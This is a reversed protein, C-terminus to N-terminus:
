YRAIVSRAAMVREGPTARKAEAKKSRNSSEGSRPNSGGAPPFILISYGVNGIPRRGHLWNHTGPPHYLDHYHNVSVAAYCNQNSADLVEHPIQYYALDALGFYSICVRQVGNAEMWRKLKKADQGWDVNSDLLWHHGNAPGGAFSNFFATYHPHTRALEVM